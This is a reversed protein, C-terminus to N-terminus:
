PKQPLNATLVACFIVKSADSRFNMERTEAQIRWCAREEFPIPSVAAACPPDDTDEFSNRFQAWCKGCLSKEPGTELSWFIIDAQEVFSVVPHSTR